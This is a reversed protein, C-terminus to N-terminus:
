QTQILKTYVNNVKKKLEQVQSDKHRLLIPKRLKDFTLSAGLALVPRSGRVGEKKGGWTLTAAYPSKAYINSPGASGFQAAGWSDGLM